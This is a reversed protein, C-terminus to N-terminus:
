LANVAADLADWDSNITTDFTGDGDIDVQLEVQDAPLARLQIRSNGAGNIM